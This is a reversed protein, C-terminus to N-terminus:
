VPSFYMGCQFVHGSRSENRFFGELATARGRMKRSPPHAM